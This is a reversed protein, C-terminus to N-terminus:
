KKEAALAREFLLVFMGQPNPEKDDVLKETGIFEYLIADPHFAKIRKITKESLCKRTLARFPKSVSGPFKLTDRHFIEYRTGEIEVDDKSQEFNGYYIQVKKLLGPGTEENEFCFERLPVKKIM